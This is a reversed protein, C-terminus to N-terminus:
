ARRDGTQRAFIHQPTGVNRMQSAVGTMEACLRTLNVDAHIPNQLTLLLHHRSLIRKVQIGVLLAAGLQDHALPRNTAGEV